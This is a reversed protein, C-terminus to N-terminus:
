RAVLSFGQSLLAHIKAPNRKIDTKSIVVTM